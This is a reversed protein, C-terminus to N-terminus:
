GFAGWQRYLLKCVLGQPTIFVFLSAVVAKDDAIAKEVNELADRVFNKNDYRNAIEDFFNKMVRGLNPEYM